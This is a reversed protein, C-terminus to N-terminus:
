AISQEYAARATDSLLFLPDRQLLPLLLDRMARAGVLRSCAQGVMGTRLAGAALLLTEIRPFDREWRWLHLQTPIEEWAGDRRAVRASAPERQMHYPVGALEEVMHLSTNCDHTVGLLLIFGGADALRGYPSDAACPTACYEHGAILWDTAPGIAAVSHTPHRSRRASPLRRFTEPITGTWCPTARPDFVPPHEPGDQITGTLTPVVVTGGPSVTKLLADIVTQAGSEVWGLRSLSSHVLVLSGPALGLARLDSVIAERSLGPEQRQTM